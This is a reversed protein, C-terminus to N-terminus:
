RFIVTSFHCRCDSLAYVVNAGPTARTNKTWALVHSLNDLQVLYDALASAQSEPHAYLLDILLLSEAV